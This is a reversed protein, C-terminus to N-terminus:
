LDKYKIITEQLKEDSVYFPDTGDRSVENFVNSMIQGLRLGNDMMEKIAEITETKM